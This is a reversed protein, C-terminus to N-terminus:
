IGEAILKLNLCQLNSKSKPVNVPAHHLLIHAHLIVDSRKALRLIACVDCSSCM